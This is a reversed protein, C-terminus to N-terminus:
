LNFYEKAYLTTVFNYLINYQSIIGNVVMKLCLFFWFTFCCFSFFSPFICVTISKPVSYLVLYLYCLKCILFGIMDIKQLGGRLTLWTLYLSSKLLSKWSSPTAKSNIFYHKGKSTLVKILMNKSPWSSHTRNMMLPAANNCMYISQINIQLWKHRVM